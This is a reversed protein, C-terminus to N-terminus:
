IYINSFLFYIFLFSLPLYNEEIIKFAVAIYLVNWNEIYQIKLVYEYMHIQM